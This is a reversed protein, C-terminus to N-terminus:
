IYNTNPNFNLKFNPNFSKHNHNAIVKPGSFPMTIMHTTLMHKGTAKQKIQLQIIKSYPISLSIVM